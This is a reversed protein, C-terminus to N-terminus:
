SPPTANTMEEDRALYALGAAVADFRVTNWGESVWPRERRKPPLCWQLEPFTRAVAEAIQEKARGVERFAGRVDQLDVIEFPISRSACEQCLIRLISEVSNRHQLLGHDPRRAVVITPMSISFLPVLIQPINAATKYTRAGSDLLLNPREIAAFGIRRHRVAIALVRSDNISKM